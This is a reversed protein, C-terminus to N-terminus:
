PHVREAFESACKEEEAAKKDENASKKIETALKREPEPSEGAVDHVAAFVRSEVERNDRAEDKAGAKGQEQPDDPM